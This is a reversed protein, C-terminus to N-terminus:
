PLRYNSAYIFIFPVSSSRRGQMIMNLISVPNQLVSYMILGSPWSINFVQKAILFTLLQKRTQSSMIYSEPKKSALQGHDWNCYGCAFVSTSLGTSCPCSKWVHPWLIKPLSLLTSTSDELPIPTAALNLLIQRYDPHMWFLRMMSATSVLAQIPIGPVTALALSATNARM